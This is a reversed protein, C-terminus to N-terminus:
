DKTITVHIDHPLAPMAAVQMSKFIGVPVACGSCCGNLHRRIVKYLEGEFGYQIENYADVAPIEKALRGINECDTKIAFTVHRSDESSAQIDTMFGCVGAEMKTTVM